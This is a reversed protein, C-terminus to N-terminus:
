WFEILMRCCYEDHQMATNLYKERVVFAVVDDSRLTTEELEKRIRFITFVEDYFPSRSTALLLARRALLPQQMYQLLFSAQM